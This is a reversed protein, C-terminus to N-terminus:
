MMELRRFCFDWLWSKFGRSWLLKHEIHKVIFWHIYKPSILSSLAGLQGSLHVTGMLLSVQPNIFVQFTKNGSYYMVSIIKLTQFSCKLLYFTLWNGWFTWLNFSSQGNIKDATLHCETISQEPLTGMVWAICWDLYLHVLKNSVFELDKFYHLYSHFFQCPKVIYLYKM